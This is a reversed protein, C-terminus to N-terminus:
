SVRFSEIIGNGDGSCEHELSLGRDEFRLSLDGLANCYAETQDLQGGARYEILVNLWNDEPEEENEHPVIEVHVGYTRSVTDAITEARNIGARISGGLKKYAEKCNM